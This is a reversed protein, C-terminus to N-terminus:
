GGPLDPLNLDELNLDELNIPPCDTPVTISVPQNLLDGLTQEVAARHEGLVPVWLRAIGLLVAFLMLLGVLLLWFTHILRGIM